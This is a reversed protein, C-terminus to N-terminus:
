RPARQARDRARAKGGGKREREHQEEPEAPFDMVADRVRKRQECRRKRQEDGREGIGLPRRRGACEQESQMMPTPRM